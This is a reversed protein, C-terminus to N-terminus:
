REGRDIGTETEFETERRQRQREEAARRGELRQRAQELERVIDPDENIILQAESANPLVQSQVFEKDLFSRLSETWDRVILLQPNAEFQSRKAEFIRARSEATSTIQQRRQEAGTLIESVSGSVLPDIPEGDIVVAEGLMIRDIRDLIEAARGEAGEEIALEYADIQEILIEAARGAAENLRTSRASEAQSRKAGREARQTSVEAFKEVLSLPPTPPPNLSVTDLTIGAGAGGGAVTDLTVQALERARRRLERGDGRILDDLPETAVAKVAANQLVSSVIAREYDPHIQELNQSARTRRFDAEFWAHILNLDSSILTGDRPPEPARRGGAEVLEQPTQGQRLAPFFAGVALSETGTNVKLLDGLPYPAAFHFGPGLGTAVARGFLVNVGEENEGVTRFGSFIFLGALVVMAVQVLRFSIRLAEALSQNAPDMLTSPDDIREHETRLTLSAARQPRSADEDANMAAPVEAPDPPGQLEHDEPRHEDTM